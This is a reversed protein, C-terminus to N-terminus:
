VKVVESKKALPKLMERMEDMQLDTDDKFDQADTKLYYSDECVFELASMKTSDAKRSLRDHLDDVQDRQACSDLM